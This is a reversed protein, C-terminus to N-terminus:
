FEKNALKAFTSDSVKSEFGKAVSRHSDAVRVSKIVDTKLMDFAANIYARSKDAMNLGTKAAIIAKKMDKVSDTSKIEVKANKAFTLLEVKADVLKAIEEEKSEEEEDESEGDKSESEEDEEEKMLMDKEAKLKEIEEDLEEISKEADTAKNKLKTVYDLVTDSVEVEADGIRLKAMTKEKNQNEDNIKAYKKDGIKCGDGCRGSDVIAIHNIKIDTQKYQYPTGMFEGDEKVLNQSYGASIEVKGDQIKKILDKDTIVLKARVYDIGDKSFVEYNASSGKQLQMINDATVFSKPHEDTVTANIYTDLSKPNLVEEKPRYVNYVKMPNETDGLEMGLYEQIGTRAIVGNIHMFGTDEDIYQSFDKIGKDKILM